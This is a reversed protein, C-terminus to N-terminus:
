DTTNSRAFECPRVVSTHTKGVGSVDDFKEANGGSQLRGCGFSSCICICIIKKM